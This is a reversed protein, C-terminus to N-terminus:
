PEMRALQNCSRSRKPANWEKVAKNTSSHSAAGSWSTSGSTPDNASLNEKVPSACGEGQDVAHADLALLLATGAFGATLLLMPIQRSM